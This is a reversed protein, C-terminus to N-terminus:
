AWKEEVHKPCWSSHRPSGVKESGCECKLEVPVEEDIRNDDWPFGGETALRHQEAALEPDDQDLIYPSFGNIPNWNHAKRPTLIKTSNAKDINKKLEELDEKVKDGLSHGYKSAVKVFDGYIRKQEAEFYKQILEWTADRITRSKREVIETATLPKQEEEIRRYFAQKILDHIAKVNNSM